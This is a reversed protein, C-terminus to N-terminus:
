IIVPGEKGTPGVQPHAEVRNKIRSNNSYDSEENGIRRSIKQRSELM